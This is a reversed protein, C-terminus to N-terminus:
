WMSFAQAFITSAGGQSLGNSCGLTAGDMLAEFFEDVAQGLPAADQGFALEAFGEAVGDVLPAM